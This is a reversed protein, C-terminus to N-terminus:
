TQTGIGKSDPLTLVAYFSKEDTHTLLSADDGHALELRQRINHLAMGHDENNAAPVAQDPLPNSITIM